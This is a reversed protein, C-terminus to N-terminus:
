VRRLVYKGEKLELVLRYQAPKDFVVVDLTAKQGEYAVGLTCRGGNKVALRFSGAQDTKGEVSESGCTLTLALDPLYKDGLKVDGYISGPPAGFLLSAALLRIGYMLIGDQSPSPRPRGFEPGKAPGSELYNPAVWGARPSEGGLAM